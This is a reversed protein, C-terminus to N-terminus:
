RPILITTTIWIFAVFADFRFKNINTFVSYFSLVDVIHKSVECMVMM